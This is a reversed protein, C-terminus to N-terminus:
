TVKSCYGSFTTRPPGWLEYPRKPSSLIKKRTLFRVVIGREDMEYCMYAQFSIHLSLLTLVSFYRRTNSACSVLEDHQSMCHVHESTVPLRMRTAVTTTSFNQTHKHTHTPRRARGHIRIRCTIRIRWM